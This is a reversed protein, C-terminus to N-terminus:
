KILGRGFSKIIYFIFYIVMISIGLQIVDVEIMGLLINGIIESISVFIELPTSALM